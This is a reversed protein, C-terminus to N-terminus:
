GKIHQGLLVFASFLSIPSFRKIISSGIQSLTWDLWLPKHGLIEVVFHLAHVHQEVTVLESEGEANKRECVHVLFCVWWWWWCQM